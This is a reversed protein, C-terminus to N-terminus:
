NDFYMEFEVPHPHTELNRIEDEKLAIFTEILDESFVDGELLFEHDAKLAEVAQRLSSPVHKLQVAASGAHHYIDIDVPGFGAATPDIRRRIGDLGAMLQAALALYPNATPDPTRFEIRTTKPSLSVPIRIAASRNARSFALNTPAEYGPVLRKYSNTTPNTIALLADAHTLLGGIYWLAIQSLNAYGNPDYFLNVGDKALSQNCHMGNGSNRYLPKPMFTATKGHARAVNKVAYKYLMAKDATDTLTSFRFNIENQGASAVEHHHREVVLGLAQMQRTMATRLDTQEDIPLARLYGQQHKVKYGGNPVRGSNWHAEASDVYYFSADPGTQFRVNDFVFFEIEVGWYSTDAIGTQRLYEEARRAVGRPDRGYERLGPELVDAMLSLAPGEVFPDCVVTAPDPRLIMDSEAIGRFGRISSGDFFFGQSLQEADVVEVPVTLHHLMGLVDVFKLDLLRIDKEAIMELVRDVKAM